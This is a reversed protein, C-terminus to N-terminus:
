LNTSSQFGRYPGVLAPWNPYLKKSFSVTSPWLCPKRCRWSWNNRHNVISEICCCKIFNQHLKLITIYSICWVIIRKLAIIEATNSLVVTDRTQRAFYQYLLVYRVTGYWLIVSTQKRTWKYGRWITRFCSFIRAEFLLWWQLTFIRDTNSSILDM